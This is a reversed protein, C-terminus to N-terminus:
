SGSHITALPPISGGVRPNEIRWNTCEPDGLPVWFLRKPSIVRGTPSPLHEQTICSQFGFHFGCLRQREERVEEDADGASQPSLDPTRPRRECRGWNGRWVHIEISPIPGFAPSQGMWSTHGLGTMERRRVAGPQWGRFCGHRHMCTVPADPFPRLRRRRQLQTERERHNGHMRAHLSNGFPEDVASYTLCRWLASHHHVSTM